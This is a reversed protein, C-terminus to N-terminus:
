ESVKRAKRVQAVPVEPEDGEMSRVSPFFGPFYSKTLYVHAPGDKPVEYKGGDKTAQHYAYYESAPILWAVTDLTRRSRRESVLETKVGLYNEVADPMNFIYQVSPMAQGVLKGQTLESAFLHASRYINIVRLRGKGRNLFAISRKNPDEAPQPSNPDAKGKFPPPAGLLEVIEEGLALSGWSPQVTKFVVWAEEAV